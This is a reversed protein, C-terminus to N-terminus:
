ERHYQVVDNLIDSADVAARMKLLSVERFTQYRRVDERPDRFLPDDNSTAKVFIDVALLAVM